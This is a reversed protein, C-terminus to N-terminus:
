FGIRPVKKAQQAQVIAGYGVLAVVVAVLRFINKMARMKSQAGM